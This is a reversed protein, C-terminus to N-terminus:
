YGERDRKALDGTLYWGGAFCNRYREEEHIYGGTGSGLLISGSDARLGDLEARSEM